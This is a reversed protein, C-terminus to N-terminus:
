SFQLDPTHGYLGLSSRIFQLIEYPWVLEDSATKSEPLIAERGFLTAPLIISASTDAGAKM